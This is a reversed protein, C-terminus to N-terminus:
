GNLRGERIAEMVPRALHQQCVILDPLWADADNYAMPSGDLRSAHLGAALAVAIPAAAEAGFGANEVVVALAITPNDM